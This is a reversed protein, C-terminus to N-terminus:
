YTDPLDNEFLVAREGKISKYRKMCENLDACVECVNGAGNKIANANVGYTFVYDVRESAYKALKSNIEAQEKGLEIVGPTIVVKIKDEYKSLLNIASIFGKENSNYADDIIVDKDNYLIELRHAIPKLAKISNKINKQSIGLCEAISVALAIMSPVYDALLSCALSYSKKGHVIFKQVGNEIRIESYNVM